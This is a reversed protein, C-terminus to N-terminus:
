QLPLQIVVKTGCVEGASNTVDLIVVSVENNFQQKLVDIKDKILQIGKSQHKIEFTKRSKIEAAKERGIGNDIVECVVSQENKLHFRIEIKRDGDKHMLGHWIANEVFPQIMLNPIKIEDTDLEEEVEIIYEFSNGFRTKELSLYLTLMNIEEELNIFNYASYQLVLRILKSFQSLYKNANDVEGKLIFQQISNLSNFIFHPNMQSRLATLKEEALRSQTLLLELENRHLEEETRLKIIQGACHSAITTLIQLHRQSYFNKEHSESDIVGLVKNDYVVPVAIESLRQLDDKIYRDDITVDQVIEAIGTYAVTGVIGKGVPIEIPSLIKGPIIAPLGDQEYPTNETSKPGWAAKQILMNTAEDKMYIVCDEFNLKSICRRAVDWLLEDVTERASMSTTFYNTVQEIELQYQLNESILQQTRIKEEHKVQINKKWKKAVVYVIIIGLLIASAIFWWTLWFPKSIIFDFTLPETINNNDLSAKVQFSYSGPSLNQYAVVEKDEWELWVTDTIGLLRYSYSVKQPDSFCIAKFHFEIGNLYYPLQTIEDAGYKYASIKKSTDLLDINTFTLVLKKNIFTSGAYFSTLGSSAPVWITDTNDCFLQLAQYNSSLFGDNSTYNTIDPNADNGKISTISSYGGSWVGGEHDITISLWINSQLGDKITYIKKLQLLNENDFFCKWIGDGKTALWVNGNVDKKIDTISLQIGGDLPYHILSDNIFHFIGKQGGLWLSEDPGAICNKFTELNEGEVKYDFNKFRFKNAPSDFNIKSFGGDGGTYINGAADEYFFYNNNTSLGDAKTFRHIETNKIVAIGEYGTGLWLWGRSDEYISKIEAHPVVGGTGLINKFISGERSYVKGRNSGFLLKNNKLQTVSYLEAEAEQRESRYSFFVRPKQYLLNDHMGIWLNNESDVLLCSIWINLYQPVESIKVLSRTSSFFQFIGGLTFYYIQGNHEILDTAVYGKDTLKVITDKKICFLGSFVSAFFVTDVDGPIMRVVNDNNNQDRKSAWVQELKKQDYLFVSGAGAFYINDSQSSTIKYVPSRPGDTLQWQPLLFDTLSITTDSLFGAIISGPFVAPGKGTGIWMNKDGQFYIDYVIVNQEAFRVPRLQSNSFYCLGADCAVWIVNRVTDEKIAYIKGTFNNGSKLFNEFKIGDFRSLGASTGVWLYGNSGQTLCTIESSPLGNQTGYVITQYNNKDPVFNIIDNGWFSPKPQGPLM